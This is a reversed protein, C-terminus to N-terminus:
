VWGRTAADVQGALWNSQSQIKSLALEMAVFRNIMVEMKRNLSAEMQEIQTEFSDISDQLSTQKFGVYGESVDTIFGLQRNLFEAVGLTLNFTTSAATTGEYTIVLGDANNGDSALSMTRGSGAATIGNITGTVDKGYVQTASDFGLPDTTSTESVVLIHGTGYTNHTLILKNADAGTGKAATVDMAYRGETTAGVTGFDLGTIGATQTDITFAVQSDGAQKDTIVIKGSGDLAVTVEDEFMDEISELLNGVTEATKDEVIYSGTVTLGNRRIGSFTIVDDDDAGTIASFLTSASQGTAGDGTLVKTYEQAFESNLANVVDDIDSSAGLSVTAERGTAFDEVAVSVAEGLTGALQKSGTVTTRTAEQTVAVTYAGAQTDTTHSVYTFNSNAASGAAIFLKKVDDFNTELADTLTEDDVALSIKDYKGEESDGLDLSIGIQSLRKFDSSVGTV